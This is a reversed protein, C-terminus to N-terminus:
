PRSSISRIIFAISDGVELNIANFTIRAFLNGDTSADFLAVETIAKAAVTCVITGTVQYTDNTTTTTVVSQTGTTRAEAAPTELGTNAAVPATTGTGYGIYKMSSGSLATAVLELGKNVIM